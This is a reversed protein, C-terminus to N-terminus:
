NRKFRCGPADPHAGCGGSTANMGTLHPTPKSVVTGGESTGHATCECYGEVPMSTACTMRDTQCTNAFASASMLTVGALLALTLTGIGRM